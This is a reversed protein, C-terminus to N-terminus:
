YTREFPFHHVSRLVQSLPLTYDTSLAIRFRALMELQM